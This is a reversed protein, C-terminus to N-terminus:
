RPVGDGPLANRLGGMKLLKHIHKMIISGENVGYSPKRCCYPTHTGTEISFEYGLMPNKLGEPSFVDWFQRILALITKKVPKSINDDLKITDFLASDRDESFSIVEDRKGPIWSSLRFATKGFEPCM